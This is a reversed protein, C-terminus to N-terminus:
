WNSGRFYYSPSLFKLVNAVRGVAGKETESGIAELKEAFVEDFYEKAAQRREEESGYLSRIKGLEGADLWMGGCGPCEDLEVKRKVSFFHRMMVVDGCKPCKRRESHDVTVSENREVDLLDLGAEEHPEDFKKLEYNDFWIGGCGGDCVDVTIDGAIMERLQNGCAPCDM